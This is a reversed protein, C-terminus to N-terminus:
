NNENKERVGQLWLKFKVDDFPINKISCMKKVWFKSHKKDEAIDMLDDMTQAMGQRIRAQKKDQQRQIEQLEGEVEQIQRSQIPYIFGCMPCSLAPKHAYFCKPCVKAQIDKEDSKKGTKRERDALTWEIHDDPFGHEVYNSAHDAIRAYDKGDAKRLVRGIQQRFTNLSKTPRLLAAYEVVPLDFGESFIDVSTLMKIKGAKFDKLMEKRDDKSTDSGIHTAVIGEDRFSQAVSHSHKISVCFSVGQRGLAFKKYENVACGTIQPKSMIEESEATKFEGMSVHLKSRDIGSPAYIKYDSLYGMNILERMSPGIVMQKFWRGLGKGDNRQPCAALGISMSGRVQFDTITNDWGKAAAHIAEDIILIDPADYRGIRNKLTDMSAICVPVQKHYKEGACIFTHPIDFDSFTGSTQEILFDRHCAFMVTKGRESANKAIFSAIATKGGGTQLVILASKYRALAERTGIIIDNQYPRLTIMGEGM